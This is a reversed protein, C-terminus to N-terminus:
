NPRLQKLCWSSGDERATRQGVTGSNVARAHGVNRGGPRQRNRRFQWISEQTSSRLCLLHKVHQVRVREVVQPDRRVLPRRPLCVTRPSPPLPALAQRGEMGRGMFQSLVACRVDLLIINDFTHGPCTGPVFTSRQMAFRRLFSRRWQM